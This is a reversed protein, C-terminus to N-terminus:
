GNVILGRGFHVIVATAATVVLSWLFFRVWFTLAVSGRILGVQHPAMEKMETLQRTHGGTLWNILCYGIPWVVILLAAWQWCFYGIVFGAVANM